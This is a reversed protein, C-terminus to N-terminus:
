HEVHFELFNDVVTVAYFGPVTLLFELEHKHIRACPAKIGRAVFIKGHTTAAYVWNVEYKYEGYFVDNISQVIAIHKDNLPYHEEDFNDNYIISVPNKSM